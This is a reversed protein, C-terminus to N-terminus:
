LKSLSSLLSLSFTNFHIYSNSLLLIKIKLMFITPVSLRKKCPLILIVISNQNGSDTVKKCKM